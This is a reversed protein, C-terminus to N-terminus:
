HLTGEKWHIKYCKYLYKFTRLSIVLWSMPKIFMCFDMGM